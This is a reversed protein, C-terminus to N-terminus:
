TNLAPPPTFKTLQDRAISLQESQQPHIRVARITPTVPTLERIVQATMLHCASTVRCGDISEVCCSFLSKVKSFQTSVAKFLQFNEVVSSALSHYIITHTIPTQYLQSAFSLLPSGEMMMMMSQWSYLSRKWGDKPPFVTRFM